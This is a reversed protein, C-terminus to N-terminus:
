TRWGRWRERLAELEKEVKEKEQNKEWEEKNKKRWAVEEKEKELEWREQELREAELRQRREQQHREAPGAYKTGGTESRRIPSRQKSIPVM